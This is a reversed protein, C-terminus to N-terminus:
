YIILLVYKSGLMRHEDWVIWFPSHRDGECWPIKNYIVDPCCDEVPVDGIPIFFIEKEQKGYDDYEEIDDEIYQQQGDEFHHFDKPQDLFSNYGFNVFGGNSMNNTGGNMMQNKGNPISVDMGHGIKTQYQEDFQNMKNMKMEFENVGGNTKNSLNGNATGNLIEKEQFPGNNRM